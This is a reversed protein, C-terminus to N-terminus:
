SHKDLIPSTVSFYSECFRGIETNSTRNRIINYMANIEKQMEGCGSYGRREEAAEVAYGTVGAQYKRTM